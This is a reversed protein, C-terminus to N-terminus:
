ILVKCSGSRSTHYKLIQSYLAASRVTKETDKCDVPTSRNQCCPLPITLMGPTTFLDRLFGIRVALLRRCNNKCIPLKIESILRWKDGPFGKEATNRVLCRFLQSPETLTGAASRSFLSYPESQGAEPRDAGSLWGSALCTSLLKVAQKSSPEVGELEVILLFCISCM